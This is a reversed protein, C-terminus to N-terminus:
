FRFTAGLTVMLPDFENSSVTGTTKNSIEMDVNLYTAEATVSWRGKGFQYDIGATAGWAFESDVEFKTDQGDIDLNFDGFNVFALRPGVYVDLHQSDMIYFNAGAYVPLFGPGEGISDGNSNADDNIEPTEAYATGIELGIRKTLRYELAVMTGIEANGGAHVKGGSPKDVSFPDSSDVIMLGSKLQWKPTDDAHSASALGGFTALTAIYFGIISPYSKITKM